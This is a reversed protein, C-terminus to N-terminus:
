IAPIYTASIGIKDATDGLIENIETFLPSLSIYTPAYCMSSKFAFIKIYMVFRKYFFQSITIKKKDM